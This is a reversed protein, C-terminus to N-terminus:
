TRQPSMARGSLLSLTERASQDVVIDQHWTVRGRSATRPTAPDGCASPEGRTQVGIDLGVARAAEFAIAIQATGKGRELQGIVKRNVGISLALDDQSLKLDRRRARIAAGLAAPSDILRM